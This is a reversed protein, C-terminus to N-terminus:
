KTELIANIDPLLRDIDGAGLTILVEFNREKIKELVDIYEDMVLETNKAMEDVEM